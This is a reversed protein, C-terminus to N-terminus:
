QWQSNFTSEINFFHTLSPKQRCLGLVLDKWKQLPLVVPPQRWIKLVVLPQRRIAKHCFRTQKCPKWNVPVAMAECDSQKNWSVHDWLEPRAEPEPGCFGQRLGSTCVRPSETSTQRGKCNTALPESEQEPVRRWRPHAAPQAVQSSCYLPHFGLLRLLQVMVLMRVDSTGEWVTDIKSHSEAKIMEWRKNSILWMRSSSRNLFQSALVSTNDKVPTREDLGRVSCSGSLWYQAWSRFHFSSGQLSHSVIDSSLKPWAYINWVDQGCKLCM